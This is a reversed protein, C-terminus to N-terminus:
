RPARRVRLRDRWAQQTRIAVRVIPYTANDQPNSPATRHRTYQDSRPVRQGAAHWQTPVLAHLLAQAFPQAMERCNGRVTNQSAPMLRMQQHNGIGAKDYADRAAETLTGNDDRPM